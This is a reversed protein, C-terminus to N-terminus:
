LHILLTNIPRHICARTNVEGVLVPCFQIEMSFYNGCWREAKPFILIKKNQPLKVNKRRALEYVCRELLKRDSIIQRILLKTYIM